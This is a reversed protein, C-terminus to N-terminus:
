QLQMPLQLHCSQMFAPMFTFAAKSWRYHLGNNMHNRFPMVTSIRCHLTVHDVCQKAGKLQRYLEEAGESYCTRPIQGYCLLECWVPLNRWSGQSEAAHSYGFLISVHCPCTQMTYLRNTAPHSFTCARATACLMSAQRYYRDATSTMCQWVLM